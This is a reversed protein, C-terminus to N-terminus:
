RVVLTGTMNPHPRCFFSYTGREIFRRRWSGGPPIDGSSWSGDVATATHVVEDANRFVVTTGAGVELHAPNFAMGRITVTVTQAASPEDVLLGARQPESLEATQDGGSCGAILALPFVWVLRNFPKM